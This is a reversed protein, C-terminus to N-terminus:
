ASSRALQCKLRLIGGFRRIGLVGHGLLLAVFRLSVPSRQDDTDVESTTTCLSIGVNEVVYLTM